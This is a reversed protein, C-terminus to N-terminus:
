HLADDSVDKGRKGGTAAMDSVRSKEALMMDRYSLDHNHDHTEISRISRWFGM